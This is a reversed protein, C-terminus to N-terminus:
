GGRKYTETLVPDGDATEIRITSYGPWELTLGNFEM